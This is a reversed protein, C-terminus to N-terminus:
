KSLSIVSICRGYDKERLKQSRRYSFFKDKEKFTDRKVHDVKVNLKLLKDNVYKRLNFLRKLKNQKLFYIKNKKSQIIFKKYFNIDVEYSKQGICPGISALIRNKANLKKLKKITNEIIGSFAGKWGAHICGILKNKSDYLIIPVCDATVVGLACGKVNTILADSNFNKSNKNNKNIVIVKNSHTQHMLKLNDLKVNIKKSVFKLNKKINAKNDKSGKGCNLGKYIGKSFGGKRSFFCHKVQKIKKLNKSYFM